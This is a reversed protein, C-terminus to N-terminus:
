VNTKVYIIYSIIFKIINATEDESATDSGYAPILRQKRSTKKRKEDPTNGQLKQFQTFSTPLNSRMNLIEDIRLPENKKKPSTEEESKLMNCVQMMSFTLSSANYRVQHGQMTIGM